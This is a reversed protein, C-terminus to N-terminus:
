GQSSESDQPDADVWVVTWGIEEDSYIYTSADKIDTSVFEVTNPELLALPETRFGMWSLTGVIAIAAAAALPRMLKPFKLLSGRSGQEDALTAQIFSLSEKKGPITSEQGNLERIADLSEMWDMADPHEKLYAELQTAENSSLEGDLLRSM